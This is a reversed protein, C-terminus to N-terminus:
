RDEEKTKEIIKTYGAETFAAYIRILRRIEEMSYGGYVLEMYQTFKIQVFLRVVAPDVTKGAHCDFCAQYSDKFVRNLLQDRFSEYKTQASCEFLLRFEDKYRCIFEIAELENEENNRVDTMARQVVHRYMRSFSSLMPDVIASFLQEKKEFCTYFAGTTVGANRCIARLSANAYGHALFEQKGSKILAARTDFDKTNM